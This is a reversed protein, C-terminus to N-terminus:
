TFSLTYALYQDKEFQEARQQLFKDNEEKAIAQDLDTNMDFMIDIAECGVTSLIKNLLQHLHDIHQKKSKVSVDNITLNKNENVKHVLEEAKNRIAVIKRALELKLDGVQGPEYSFIDLEQEGYFNINDIAGIMEEIFSLKYLVEELDEAWGVFYSVEDIMLIMDAVSKNQEELLIVKTTKQGWKLAEEEENDYAEQELYDLEDQSLNFSM